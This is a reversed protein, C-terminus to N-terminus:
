KDFLSFLIFSTCMTTCQTNHINRMPKYIARWETKRIRKWWLFFNQRYILRSFYVVMYMRCSKRCKYVSLKEERKMKIYHKPTAKLKTVRVVYIYRFKMQSISRVKRMEYLELVFGDLGMGGGGEENWVCLFFVWYVLM